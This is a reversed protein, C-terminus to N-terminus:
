GKAKRLGRKTKNGRGTINKNKRNQKRLRYLFLLSIMFMFIWYSYSIGLVMTQHVGIIFLGVALSFIIVDFLKM